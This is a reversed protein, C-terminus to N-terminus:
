DYDADRLQADQMRQQLIVRAHNAVADCIREAEDAENIADILLDSDEWIEGEIEALWDDLKQLRDQDREYERLAALNGDTDIRPM